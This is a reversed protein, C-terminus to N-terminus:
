YYDDESPAEASAVETEKATEKIQVRSQDLINKHASIDIHTGIYHMFLNHRYQSKLADDQENAMEVEIISDVFDKTNTILQNTNAMDLFVPPPFTVELAVNEGYEYNYIASVIPAMINQFREQRKYVTRLFKSSSMSLQSAYDVSKRTQIIEVPVGMSDIAMDKLIDMLDTHVDFQQGSIVDIDIPSDGSSSMPIIYDNFKGTINLVNNISNFQRIGFNGQKIQNIVTMLTQAINTEAMQKVRYVRKDQGRTMIGIANTVYLSAYLKAPVLGRALDSIGRHTDEDLEFYSHHIDEPPIFSIKVMDISPTNFLDNYKLIEYIEKTLDQNTNVFKKDIFKSLQGAIYKITEEQRASEVSNLNSRTAGGFSQMNDGLLNRFGSADSDDKAKLEIYYYGLNADEIYMPIITKRKLFKVVAGPVDVKFKSSDPDGKIDGIFGDSATVSGPNKMVNNFNLNGKAQPINEHVVGTVSETFSEKLSKGRMNKIRVKQAAELVASEIMGSTDIEIGLKFSEKENLISVSEFQKSKVNGSYSKSVTETLYVPADCNSTGGSESIIKCSRNDMTLLYHTQNERFIEKVESEALVGNELSTGYRTGPVADPKQALLKSIATRYPVIYVFKEGYKATDDYIDETLTQLKYKKKLETIRQAFQETAIDTPYKINLFDKSFHDASLVADKKVNLAEELDPMYKCVNDIEADLEELYRNGMYTAYMDDMMMPDEFMSSLTTDPNGKSDGLIRSFLISMTPMGITGMNRSVIKDINDNIDQSISKIDNSAQPSSFYTTRYLDDMNNQIGDAIDQIKKSAKNRKQDDKAM